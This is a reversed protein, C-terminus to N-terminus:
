LLSKVKLSTIGFSLTKVVLSDQVHCDHHLSLIFKFCMTSNHTIPFISFYNTINLSLYSLSSIVGGFHYHHFKDLYPAYLSPWSPWNLLSSLKIKSMKAKFAEIVCIKSVLTLCTKNNILADKTKKLNGIHNLRKSGM